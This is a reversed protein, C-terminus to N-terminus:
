LINVSLFSPYEFVCSFFRFTVTTQSNWYLFFPITLDIFGNPTQKRLFVTAIYLYITCLFGSSQATQRCIESCSIHNLVSINGYRSRGVRCGGGRGKKQFYTIFPLNERNINRHYELIIRCVHYFSKSVTFSIIEETARKMKLASVLM